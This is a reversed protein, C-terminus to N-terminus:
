DVGVQIKDTAIKQTNCFNGIIRTLERIDDEASELKQKLEPGIQGLAGTKADCVVNRLDALPAELEESAVTIMQERLQKQQELKLNATRLEHERLVRKWIDRAVGVVAVPNGASDKIITRSLSVPFLSNDKRKHYFGNEYIGQSRRTQFVSKTNASESEGLWLIGSSKGVIESEEYGYQQCLAKNVFIIHGEINTIYVSDLTSELAHSLLQRRNETQKHETIERRLQKNSKALEANKAQLQKEALWKASLATAFQQIEHPHFPKQLYLLKDAPPVRHSIDVPDVDSYATVIVIQIYPDLARIHEATRVGNPGPPMRVDLFAVAFPENKEVAARVKEVAEDGQSCLVLELPAASSKASTKSFLKAELEELKAQSENSGTTPCLIEKYEDLIAQEDDVVLIRPCNVKPEKM